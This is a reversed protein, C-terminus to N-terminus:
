DYVTITKLTSLSFIHFAFDGFFACPEHIINRTQFKMSLQASSLMILLKIVKPGPKSSVPVMTLSPVRFLSLINM